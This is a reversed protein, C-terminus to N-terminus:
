RAEVAAARRDASAISEIVPAVERATKNLSWVSPRWSTQTCTKGVVLRHSEGGVRLGVLELPSERSSPFHMWVLERRSTDAGVPRPQAPRRASTVSARPQRAGGLEAEMQSRSRQLRRVAPPLTMLCLGGLRPQAGRAFQESCPLRAGRIRSPQRSMSGDSRPAFESDVSGDSSDVLGLHLESDRNVTARQGANATRPTDQVHVVECFTEARLREVTGPPATTTRRSARTSSSGSHDVGSGLLRIGLWRLWAREPHSPNTGGRDSNVRQAWPRPRPRALERSPNRGRHPRSSASERDAAGLGSLFPAALRGCLRQRPGFGM